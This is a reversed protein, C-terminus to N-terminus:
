LYLKFYEDKGCKGFLQLYNTLAYWFTFGDVFFYFKIECVRSYYIKDRKHAKMNRFHEFLCFHQQFNYELRNPKRMYQDFMYTVVLVNM